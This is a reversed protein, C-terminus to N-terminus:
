LPKGRVRRKAFRKLGAGDGEILATKKAHSWKKIQRERKEATVRDLHEESYLLREVGLVTTTRSAEHKIHRKIRQDINSTTGVYLQGNSMRLIYLFHPM